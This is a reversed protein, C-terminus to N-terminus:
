TFRLSSITEIARILYPEVKKFLKIRSTKTTDPPDPRYVTAKRFRVYALSRLFPINVYHNQIDTQLILKINTLKNSKRQKNEHILPKNLHSIVSYRSKKILNKSNM